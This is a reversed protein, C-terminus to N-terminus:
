RKTASDLNLKRRSEGNKAMVVARLVAPVDPGEKGSPERTDSVAEGCLILRLKEQEPQRFRDSMFWDWPETRLKTEERWSLLLANSQTVDTVKVWGSYAM